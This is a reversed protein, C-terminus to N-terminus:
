SATAIHWRAQFDAMADERSPAYGASRYKLETINLPFCLNGQNILKLHQGYYGRCNATATRILLIKFFCVM